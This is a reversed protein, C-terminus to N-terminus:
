YVLRQQNASYHLAEECSMFKLKPVLLAWQVAKSRVLRVVMHVQVHLM